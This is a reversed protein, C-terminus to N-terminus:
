AREAEMRHFQHTFVAVGIIPVFLNLLPVTLPAAMAVGALWIRGANRRRLRLVADPALRRQAVLQFYERGLLFGNTLVFVFPALPAAVLYVLLAGANVAVVLGFFRLSDRVQRGLGPPNAPGLRPYHRAEVADAVDDLFFGAAAATAPIMLVTSLVLMLGIAAWSVLDDVFGVQGILPLTVTEPLVLGLAIMTLWFVAALAVIVVLLARLLVSRFRPDGIQALARGFDAFLSM